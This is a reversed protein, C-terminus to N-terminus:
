AVYTCHSSRTLNRLQIAGWRKPEGTDLPGDHREPSGHWIIHGEGDKAGLQLACTSDYSRVDRM